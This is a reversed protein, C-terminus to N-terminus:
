TTTVARPSSPRRARRRRWTAPSRGSSRPSRPPAGTVTVKGFILGQNGMLFTTKLNQTTTTGATLTVAVGSTSTACGSAACYGPYAIDSGAPLGTLSYTASANTGSTTAKFSGSVCSVSPTGGTYPTSSPCLLVTVHKVPDSKPVATVTAKGTLTAPKAYKVLLTAGNVTEGSTVVAPPKNKGNMDGSAKGLFRAGGSTLEYFGFLNYSGASLTLSFTGFAGHGAPTAITTVPNACLETSGTYPCEEVGFVAPKFNPPVQNGGVIM